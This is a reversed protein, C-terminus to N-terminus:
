GILHVAGEPRFVRGERFEGGVRRVTGIGRGLSRAVVEHPGVVPGVAQRRENGVTGVVVTGELEGFLEDGEHYAVGQLPLRQGDVAVTELNTVPQVDDVVTLRNEGDQLTSFGALGVVDAPLGLPGVDFQHGGEAVDHVLDKRLRGVPRVGPEDGVDLVTGTVVAPVGDVKGPDLRVEAPLRLLGQLAAQLLGDPPVEIVPLPDIM